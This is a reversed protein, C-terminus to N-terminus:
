HYKALEGRWHKGRTERRKPWFGQPQWTEGKNLEKQFCSPFGRFVMSLNGVVLYLRYKQLLTVFGWILCASSAVRSFSYFHDSKRADPRNRLVGRPKQPLSVLQPIRFFIREASHFWPTNQLTKKKPISGITVTVPIGVPFEWLPQSSM